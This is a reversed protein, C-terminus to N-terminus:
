HRTAPKDALRAATCTPCPCNESGNVVAIEAGLEMSATIMDRIILNEFGDVNSAFGRLIYPLARIRIANEDTFSDVHEAFTLLAAKTGQLFTDDVIVAETKSFGHLRQLMDLRVQRMNNLNENFMSEVVQKFSSIM